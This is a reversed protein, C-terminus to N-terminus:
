YLPLLWPVLIVCVVMVILSFPVGVRVFDEFAYRGPVVVLTNVPSSIPTMFATSAALAVIMAFPYPSAKLEDAIALAVPAMLVATATNSIFLGLVATIAFLSGLVIYSSAGGIARILADAALDVGGTKQLAISFPLMGVILVLSSWHISRYASNLDLCRLAGMLLCGILAAQVNPVAGSVMLAITLLLCFIAQPARKAAPLVDDLEVPLNLLILETTDSRLKEIAKWTGILLLTDGLKLPETLLGRRICTKGRRLGVVTLGYRRRFRLELITKDIANSNAPIFVEAMGIEQSRDSFYDGTLPLAELGFQQHLAELNNSPAFLDVLLVDDAQLETRASPAILDKSFRRSREIAVINAGATRRLNLEEITKGVLPSRETLRVRHERDRLKYEEIWQRLNPRSSSGDKQHIKAVLWRRAFTMYLIGLVLIPLGFPTFSFFRFGAVGHRALESNVVLNPATAVLTLMGSILAACSLPMMLRSASIGTNQCIRLVIPIFIAVVGTSSMVSGLGAVVFMLLVILRVEATGARAILWDGLRQAVGTRVLGEGVVFLAAILVINPDSFGALAENISIVGTLPLVTMVILAVADMRPKNIAFMAIAAGLLILVIALEPNM